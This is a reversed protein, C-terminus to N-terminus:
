PTGLVVEGAQTRTLPVGLSDAIIGLSTDLRDIFFTGSVKSKGLAPDALRLRIDHYRGIEALVEDLRRNDFILKGQRWATLSAVSEGPGVAVFEGAPDYALAQAAGLERSQQADVRVRGEQVAVVVRDPRLHVDFATGIDVTHGKGATVTFPRSADHAVHFYAEGRQLTVSRERRNLRVEVESDTNLELRSGDALRIAQHGGRPVTYRDHTGYWGDPSFATLGAVLMVTAAMALGAYRQARDRRAPPRHRLAERRVALDADRFSDLWDLRASIEAYAARHAPDQALWAALARRDQDSGDNSARIAWEIAEDRLEDSIPSHPSVTM